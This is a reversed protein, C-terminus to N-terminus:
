SFSSGFSSNLNKSSFGVRESKKIQLIFTPKSWIHLATLPFGLRARFDVATYCASWVLVNIGNTQRSIRHVYNHRLKKKYTFAPKKLFL